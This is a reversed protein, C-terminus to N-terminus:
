DRDAISERSRITAGVIRAGRRVHGPSQSFPAFRQLGCQQDGSAANQESRQREREADFAQQPAQADMRLLRVIPGASEAIDELPEIAPPLRSLAIMVIASDDNCRLGQGAVQVGFRAKRGRNEVQGNSCYDASRTYLAVITRV